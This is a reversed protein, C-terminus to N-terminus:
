ASVLRLAPGSTVEIYSGGADILREKLRRDVTLVPWSNQVSLTVLADDTHSIGEATASDARVYLLDLLLGRREADLAELEDRVSDILILNAEGVVEGLSSDLNLGADVLSIWGCTDVLVGVM